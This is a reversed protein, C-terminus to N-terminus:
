AADWVPVGLFNALTQADNQLRRKNGHDVVNIREGDRLVLNLEYSYYSSKDGRCYESIIQLAHIKGLEVSNAKASAEPTYSPQKRGRWFYGNLRDFVIPTTGVILMTLGVVAFVLGVLVPFFTEANFVMTEKGLNITVIVVTTVIGAVFFVSYFIIAGFTARFEIRHSEIAKLKRTCFNSGGSKVPTWRTKIAVPDDFGAPDVVGPSRTLVKLKELLKNLM